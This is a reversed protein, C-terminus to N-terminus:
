AHADGWSIPKLVSARIHLFYLFPHHLHLSIEQFGHVPIPQFQKPMNEEDRYLERYFLKEFPHMTKFNPCFVFKIRHIKEEFCKALKQMSLFSLKPQSAPM